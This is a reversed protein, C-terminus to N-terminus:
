LPASLSVPRTIPLATEQFLSSEIRQPDSIGLLNLFDDFADFGEQAGAQTIDGSVV